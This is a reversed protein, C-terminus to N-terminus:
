KRGTYKKLYGEIKDVFVPWSHNKMTFEYSTDALKKALADDSLIEVTKKVLEEDSKAFAVGAGKEPIIDLIGKLRRSVLPKRCALYQFLKAPIIDKTIKCERFPNICVSSLNIYQVAENYPVFGTFIVDKEVGEKKTMERLKNDIGAGGVLLLKAGPVKKRIDKIGKIFIDLGGFDYFTGLYMIIKDKEGIGHKKRLAVLKPNKADIPYFLKDNVAPYLPLYDKRGTYDGLKPTLVLMYDCNAYVHRELAAVIQKIPFPFPRLDQLIDLTRFFVPVKHKKAFHLTIWGNTPVSYLIVADFKTQLFLKKIAFWSAIMGTFRSIFSGLYIAGPRVIKVHADPFVRNGRMHKTKLSFTEKTGEGFDVMTVDHSRLSLAEPIEIFEYVPKTLYNVEHVVLINM